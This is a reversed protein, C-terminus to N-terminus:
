WNELQKTKNTFSFRIYRRSWAFLKRRVVELLWFWRQLIELVGEGYIADKNQAMQKLIAFIMDQKEANRCKRDKTGRRNKLLDSASKSKLDKLHM